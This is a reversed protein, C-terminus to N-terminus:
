LFNLVMAIAYLFSLSLITVLFIVVMLGQKDKNYQKTYYKELYIGFNKSKVIEKKRTMKDNQDNWEELAEQDGEGFGIPRYTDM